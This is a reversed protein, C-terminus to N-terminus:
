ISCGCWDSTIRSPVHSGPQRTDSDKPMPAVGPNPAPSIPAPPAHGTRRVAESMRTYGTNNTHAVVAVWGLLLCRTIAGAVLTILLFQYGHTGGAGTGPFWILGAGLGDVERPVGEQGDHAGGIDAVMKAYLGFAFADDGM